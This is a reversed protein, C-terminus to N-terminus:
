IGGRNERLDFILAKSRGVLNMASIAVEGAYETDYFGTLKIYCVNGKLIKVEEFGFNAEDSIYSPKLGSKKSEKTATINLTLLCHYTNIKLYRIYTM